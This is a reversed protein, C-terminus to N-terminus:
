AKKGLLLKLNLAEARVKMFGPTDGSLVQQVLRAALSHSGLRGYVEALELKLSLTELKEPALKIAKRYSRAAEELAGGDVQARALLYLVEADQRQLSLAQRLVAEAQEPAGAGLWARGCLTLLYLRTGPDLPHEAMLAQWCECAERLQGARFSVMGTMFASEVPDTLMKLAERAQQWRGRMLAGCVTDIPQVRYGPDLKAAHDLRGARALVAARVWEPQDLATEEGDGDGTLAEWLQRAEQPEQLSLQMLPGLFRHRVPTYGGQVSYAVTVAAPKLHAVRGALDMPSQWLSDDPSLFYDIDIDLLVPGTIAPVSHSFCLEFPVGLLRGTVSGEQQRLSTFDALDLHLWNQLEQYTWDLLPMDAPLHDPIVWVLAGVIGEEIAPLLYNGCNIEPSVVAENCPAKLNGLDLHADVHVCPLGRLGLEKWFFYADRHDEMLRTPTM